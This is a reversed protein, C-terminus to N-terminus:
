LMLILLRSSITPSIHTQIIFADDAYTTTTNDSITTLLKLTSGGGETRYIRRNATGTPGLPINSLNVKRNSADTTVTNSVSLNVKRNSADTTVTNSVAGCIYADTDMTVAYYYAAASDLNSGGSALVAKCAGMEWTVNDSTGDYIFINDYGNGCYLLDKYTVFSFKKGTTLGTRIATTAGSSDTGVYLSTDHAMILNKTGDSKYYRYISVVGPTGLSSATYYVLPPRKVVSQPEDEFRCNQATQVKRSGLENPDIKSNQGMFKDLYWQKIQSTLPSM